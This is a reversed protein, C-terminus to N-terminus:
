ASPVPSTPAASPTMSSPPRSSGSSDLRLVGIIWRESFGAGFAVLLYTGPNAVNMGPMVNWSLLYYAVVAVTSGVAARVAIEIGRIQYDAYTVPKDRLQLFASLLAGLTGIAAIGVATLVALVADGGPPTIAWATLSARSVLITALFVAVVMSAIAANRFKELRRKQLANDISWAASIDNLIGIGTDLQFRLDDGEGDIKVDSALPSASAKLRDNVETAQAQLWISPVLWILLRRARGLDDDVIEVNPDETELSVRTHELIEISEDASHLDFWVQDGYHTFVSRLNMELESWDSRLQFAQYTRFDTLRYISDPGSAEEARWKPLPMKDLRGAIRAMVDLRADGPSSLRQSATVNM